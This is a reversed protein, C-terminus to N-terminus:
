EAQAGFANMAQLINMTFSVATFGVATLAACLRWRSVSLSKQTSISSRDALERTLDIHNQLQVTHESQAAILAKYLQTVEGRKKKGRVSFKKIFAAYEADGKSQKIFRLLEEGNELSIGLRDGIATAYMQEQTQPKLIDSGEELSGMGWVNSAFLCSLLVLSVKM